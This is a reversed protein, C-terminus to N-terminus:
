RCDATPELSMQIGDCSWHAAEGPPQNLCYYCDGPFSCEDGATPQVLPCQADSVCTAGECLESQVADDDDM